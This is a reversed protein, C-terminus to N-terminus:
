YGRGFTTFVAARPRRNPKLSAELEDIIQKMETLKRYTVDRERFRVRHTGSYFAEKLDKLFAQREETTLGDIPIEDAM